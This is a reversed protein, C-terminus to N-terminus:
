NLSSREYVDKIKYSADSEQTEFKCWRAWGICSNCDKIMPYTKCLNKTNTNFGFKQSLNQTVPLALSTKSANM